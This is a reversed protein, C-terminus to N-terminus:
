KKALSGTTITGFLPWFRGLVVGFAGLLSWKPGEQHVKPPWSPGLPVLLPGFLTLFPGFPALISGRQSGKPAGRAGFHGWSAWTPWKPGNQDSKCGMKTWKQDMKSLKEVDQSTMEESSTRVEQFAREAWSTGSKVDKSKKPPCKM